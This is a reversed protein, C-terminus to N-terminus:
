SYKGAIQEVADQLDRDKVDIEGSFLLSGLENKINKSYEPNNMASLLAEKGRKCFNDAETDNKVLKFYDNKNQAKKNTINDHMSADEEFVSNAGISFIRDQWTTKQSKFWSAYIDLSGGRDLLSSRTYSQSYFPTIRNAKEFFLADFSYPRAHTRIDQVALDMGALYINASSLILALEAATATVTGRQGIIVSPLSLEHLIVSQWFSGDNILLQAAQTTQSPLAACLNVALIKGSDSRYFPYLHKLAWSGGDTAIVIDAKIGSAHLALLSSSSAIILCADEAKKIIPIAEELGPGSGTVIVPISSQKYLLSTNVNKLNRFFNKVWRRGFAATTRRGADARKLFQAAESLIKVYAQRYHNLSPRWEIIKIHEANHQIHAELFKQIELPEGGTLSYDAQTLSEGQDEVHLSIIVSEKFRERLASILYGQGPEILIFCQIDDKLNLSDIYRAAEAQPNYRSHLQASKM